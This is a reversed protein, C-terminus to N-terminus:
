RSSHPNRRGMLAMYSLAPRHRADWACAPCAQAAADRFDNFNTLWCM